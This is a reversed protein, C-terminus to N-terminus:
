LFPNAKEIPDEGGSPLSDDDEADAGAEAKDETARGAPMFGIRDVNVYDFRIKREEIVMVYSDLSGEVSIFNGVKLYKEVFEARKGWAHCAHYSTKPKEGKAFVMKTSLKFRAFKQGGRGQDSEKTTKCVPATAVWGALLVRNLSYYDM